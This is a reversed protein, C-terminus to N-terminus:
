YGTRSSRGNNDDTPFERMYRDELVPRRIARKIGSMIAYRMADLAHDKQNRKIGGQDDFVYLSLESLLSTCRNFIFLRKNTFMNTVTFIGEEVKNNANTLDLGLNRYQEFYSSNNKQASGKNSSPDIVGPIWDAGMRNLRTAHDMPFKRESYYENYIYVIPDDEGYTDIDLALFIAATEDVFGVDLGYVRPWHDPIAFPVVAIERESLPYVRGSGVSPIGKTRAEIEHPLLGKIIRAKDEESLHPADDWTVNEIYIHENHKPVNHEPFRGNELFRLVVKSLGRLPTFVTMLIGKTTITRMLQESYIEADEPEEDNIILDVRDGQFARRGQDYSKFVLVARGGDERNYIITDIANPVGHKPKVEKFGKKPLFGSGIDSINGTLYTQMNDRVRAATLSCVWILIDGILRKGTYWDPYKGSIHMAAFYAAGFSKGIQNGGVLLLENFNLSANMFSITKEYAHRSLPGDEPFIYDLKNYRTRNDLEELTHFLEELEVRSLTSLDVPLSDGHTTTRGKALLTSSKQKKSNTAM